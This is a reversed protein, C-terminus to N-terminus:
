LRETARTQHIKANVIETVLKPKKILPPTTCNVPSLGLRCIYLYKTTNSYRRFISSRTTAAIRASMDSPDPRRFVSSILEFAKRRHSSTIHPLILIQSFSGDRGKESRETETM